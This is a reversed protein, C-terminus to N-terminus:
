RNTTLQALLPQRDYLQSRALAALFQEMATSFNTFEEIEQDDAASLDSGLQRRLTQLDAATIPESRSLRRPPQGQRGGIYRSQYDARIRTLTKQLGRAVTAGYAPLDQPPSWRAVICLITASQLLRTVSEKESDPHFYYLVSFRRLSQHSDILQQHLAALGSVGTAAIFQSAAAPSRLELDSFRLAHARTQTALPYVSLIYSIAASVIAVGLGAECAVAVRIANHTPLLDGLGLTTIMTASAYLAAFLGRHPFHVSSSFRSIFPLYILAFGIWVGALWSILMTVTALPGAFILLRQRGLSRALARLLGWVQRNLRHSFPGEITPHLVTLGIDLVMGLVVVIGAAVSVGNM